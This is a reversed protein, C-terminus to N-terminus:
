RSQRRIMFLADYLVKEFGPSQLELILFLQVLEDKTMKLLEDRTDM